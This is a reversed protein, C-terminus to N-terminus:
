FKLECAESDAPRILYAAGSGAELVEMERGETQQATKKSFRIKKEANKRQQWLREPGAKGM